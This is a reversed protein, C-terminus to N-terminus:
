GRLFLAIARCTYLRMSDHIFEDKEHRYSKSTNIIMTKYLEAFYNDEDEKSTNKNVTNKEEEEQGELAQASIM